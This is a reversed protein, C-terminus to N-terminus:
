LRNVARHMATVWCDTCVNKMAPWNKSGTMSSPMGVDPQQWRSLLRCLKGAIAPRDDTAPWVALTRPTNQGTAAHSWGNVAFSM